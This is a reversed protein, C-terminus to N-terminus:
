GARVLLVSCPAHRALHETGGGALKGRLGGPGLAHMVLLDHHAAERLIEEHPKGMEGKAKAAIGLKQAIALAKALVRQSSAESPFIEDEEDAEFTEEVLQPDGATEFGEQMVNFLTVELGPAGRLMALGRELAQYSVESGDLPFLVRM